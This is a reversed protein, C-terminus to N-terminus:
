KIQGKVIGIEEPTLDYLEYVLNDIQCDLTACKNELLKPDGSRDGGSSGLSSDPWKCSEFTPLTVAALRACKHPKWHQLQQRTGM